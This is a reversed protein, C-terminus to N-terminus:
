PKLQARIADTDEDRLYKRVLREARARAVPSKLRRAEVVAELVLEPLALGAFQRPSCNVLDKALQILVEEAAKRERNIDSRSRLNRDDEAMLKREAMIDALKRM